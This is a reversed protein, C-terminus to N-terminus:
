KRRVKKNDAGAIFKKTTKKMTQLVCASVVSYYKTIKSIKIRTKDQGITGQAQDSQAGYM